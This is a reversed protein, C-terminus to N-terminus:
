STRPRVALRHDLRATADAIWIESVWQEAPPLDTFRFAAAEAQVRVTFRALTVHPSFTAGVNTTDFAEMRASPPGAAYQALDLADLTRIHLARIVDPPHVLLQVTLHDSVRVGEYRIALPLATRLLGVAQRFRRPDILRCPTYLLTLHPDSVPPLRVAVEPRATRAAVARLLEPPPRVVLALRQQGLPPAPGTADQTM